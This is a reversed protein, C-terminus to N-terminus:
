VNEAVFFATAKRLCERDIRLQANEARLRELLEARENSDMAPTPQDMRARQKAVRRGLLREGLGIEAVVASITRWSDIVLYASGRRYQM